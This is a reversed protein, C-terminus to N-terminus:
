RGEMKALTANILMLAEDMNDAELGQGNLMSDLVQGAKQLAAQAEDFTDHRKCFLIDHYGEANIGAACGCEKVVNSQLRTM